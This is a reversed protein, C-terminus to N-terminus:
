FYIIFALKATAHNEYLSENLAIQYTFQALLWIEVNNEYVPLTGRLETHLFGFRGSDSWYDQNFNLMVIFFNNLGAFFRYDTGTGSVYDLAIELGYNLKIETIALVNLCETINTADPLTQM